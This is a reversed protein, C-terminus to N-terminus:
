AGLVAGADGSVTGDAVTLSGGLGFAGIRSGDALGPLLDVQEFADGALGIAASAMVTPLFPGPAVARGLEQVVVALEPLGYGSGGVSEPLHLGLWGMGALENWFGPLKEDPADLLARAEARAGARTLFSRAVGELERHADTIAITM